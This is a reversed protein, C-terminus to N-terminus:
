SIGGDVEYYRQFQHEMSEIKKVLRSSDQQAIAHMIAHCISLAGTYSDLFYTSEQRSTFQIDAYPAAPSALQDTLVIVTMGKQKAERIVYLTHPCYRPYFSVFLVDEAQFVDVYEPIDGIPIFTTRGLTYRLLYSMYSTVAQGMRWGAVYIHSAGLLDSAAQQVDPEKMQQGTTMVNDVETMFHKFLWSEVPVETMKMLKTIVKRNHQNLFQLEQKMLLFSDFGLQKAFRHVTTESVKTRNAIQQATLFSCEQLHQLIFTAINKQSRSWEVDPHELKEILSSIRSGGKMEVTLCSHLDM